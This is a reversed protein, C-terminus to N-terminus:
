SYQCCFVSCFCCFFFMDVECSVHDRKQQDFTNNLGWFLLFISECLCADLSNNEDSCPILDKDHCRMSVVNYPNLFNVCNYRSFQSSTDVSQSAFVTYKLAIILYPTHSQFLCMQTCVYLNNLNQMAKALIILTACLVLGFMVLNIVEIKWFNLQVYLFYSQDLIIITKERTFFAVRQFVVVYVCCLLWKFLCALSFM